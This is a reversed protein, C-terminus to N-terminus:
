AQDPAPPSLQDALAALRDGEQSILEGALHELLAIMKPSTDDLHDSAGRPLKIRFRHHDAGCVHDLQYDTADSVGDFVIDILPRVWHLLGWGAAAEHSIEKTLQGTGLSVVVVRESPFRRRVEAYACMAPNNAFVGGDVLSFVKGATEVRAPEFYTPAASTARAAVKLDYDYGDRDIANWTKFFFPNRHELDYATLLLPTLSESLRASGLYRDLIDEIPGASYREELMGAATTVTRVLSRDFIRPGEVRYLEALDAATWRARDRAEPDPATLGCALLGGTSTGAILDFLRHVPHGALRELEALVLAPLLGRIGGGDISLVRFAM